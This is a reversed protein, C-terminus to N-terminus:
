RWDRVRDIARDLQELPTYFHPSLRVGGARPSCVVGADTLLRHLAAGDREAHRFTFIGARRAPDAPTLIEIGPLAGLGDFLRDIRENLRDHVVDSGIEDLLGLSEHMAHIGTMNPTGSEFRRASDAPRWDDADFDYPDARMAWGYQRLRLRDRLAPRVYLFGLGEPSLLWKHGGGCVFDAQVVRADFPVAGLGQIVDISFLVDASRCALGLRELDLRVGTAYHVSSVALLRTRDSLADILAAEPDDTALADVARFRVGLDGLAEWAMRNSVFDHALGVIEDGPRWDLGFAVTSLGESTNKTLAIDDAAPANILRALRSRLSRETELWEPYDAGGRSMNRHAFSAVAQATRRPWPGIAAHNLYCLDPDQPFEGPLYLM